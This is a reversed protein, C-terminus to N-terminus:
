RGGRGGAARVVYLWVYRDDSERQRPRRAATRRASHARAKALLARKRHPQREVNQGSSRPLERHDQSEGAYVRVFNVTPSPESAAVNLVLDTGSPDRQM